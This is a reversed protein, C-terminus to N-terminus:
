GMSYIIALGQRCRTDTLRLRDGGTRYFMCKGNSHNCDTAALNITNNNGLECM